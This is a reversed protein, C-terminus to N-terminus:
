VRRTRGRAGLASDRAKFCRGRRDTKAKGHGLELVDALGHGTTEQFINVLSMKREWIFHGQRARYLKVAQETRGLKAAMASDRMTGLLKIEWLKWKRCPPAPKFPAIKFATRQHWVQYNSRRLRRAVEYDNITGLLKIERMTWPRPGTEMAIRYHERMTVIEKITRGRRRALVSDPTKGLRKLEAFSWASGRRSKPGIKRFAPVLQEEM